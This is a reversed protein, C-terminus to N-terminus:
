HFLTCIRCGRDLGTEDSRGARGASFGEGLDRSAAGQSPMEPTVALTRARELEKGGAEWGLEAWNRRLWWLLSPTLPVLKM